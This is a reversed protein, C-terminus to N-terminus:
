SQRLVKKPTRDANFVGWHKEVEDPHPGGKWNEDFAEFWFTTVQNELAWGRLEHWYREQGAEDPTAKILKAQEGETHKHTAWGAEGIVITKTPHAASIEGYIRETWPLANELPCGAWLAHVHLVIFDLEAAVAQGLAGIADLYRRFSAACLWRGAAQSHGPDAGRQVSLTTSEASPPSTSLHIPHLTSPPSPLPSDTRAM